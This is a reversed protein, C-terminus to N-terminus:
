APRASEFTDRFTREFGTFLPEDLHRRLRQVVTDHGQLAPTFVSVYLVDDARILRWLPPSDTVRTAVPCSTALDALLRLCLATGDAMAAPDEGIDQARRRSADSEPDALVVRVTAPVARGVLVPRLLSDALGILGLGRVALVDVSRAALVDARIDSTAALQDPYARRAIGPVDRGATPNLGLHARAHAPMALGDAIREIVAYAAVHRRGAVIESIRGQQLGVAASIRQQSIGEAHVAALVAPVARADLHAIIEPREWFSDPLDVEHSHLM